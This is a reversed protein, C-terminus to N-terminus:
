LQQVVIFDPVRLAWKVSLFQWVQRETFFYLQSSTAEGARKPDANHVIFDLVRYCM